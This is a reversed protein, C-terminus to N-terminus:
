AYEEPHDIFYIEAMVKGHYFGYILALGVGLAVGTALSLSARLKLKEIFEAASLAKGTPASGLPGLLNVVLWSFAQTMIKEATMPVGMGAQIGVSTITQLFSAILALLYAQSVTDNGNFDSNNVPNDSAYVYWNFGDKARDENLFRGNSPEYFRARMYVLGSEDDQKHGISACYRGEYDSTGGTRLVGWADYSREESISWSSGSKSLMGVNDGYADYLPYSVSTGSSTTRSIAEIGRAGLASRNIAFVSYTSGGNTSHLEVDEVGMQGDYRYQTIDSVTSGSHSEKQIRMGDARYVYNSTTGSAVLQSMRNLDDWSYTGTGKTLRNGAIDNTYTTGPSATM